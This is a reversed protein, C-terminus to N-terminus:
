TASRSRTRHRRHLSCPRRRQNPSRTRTDKTRPAVREHRRGVSGRGSHQPVVSPRVPRRGDGFPERLVPGGAPAPRHSRRRRSARLACDCDDVDLNLGVASGGYHAPSFVDMEPHEDALMIRAGQITIEAHGVRGDDGVMRSQEIAGFARAYFDLADAAGRCCLYPVIRQTATATTLSESTSMVTTREPTDIIPFLEAEIRRRLDLAFEVRPAVALDPAPAALMEFPDTAMAGGNATLPGSRLAPGCSCRRPRMSRGTSPRPWRPSPCVTSTGCCSRRRSSASRAPRAHRQGSRRRAGRGVSRRRDGRRARARACAPATGRRALSRRAQQPRRRDALRDVDRRRDGM